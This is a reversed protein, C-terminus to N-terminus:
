LGFIICVEKGTSPDYLRITGDSCGAMIAKNLPLWLCCIIKEGKALGTETVEVVPTESMSYIDEPVNYISFSAHKDRFPDTCAIFQRDGDAWAVSKITGKHFIQKILKGSQM